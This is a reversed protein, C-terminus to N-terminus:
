KSKWVRDVRILGDAVAVMGNVSPNALAHNDFYTLFLYPLERALLNNIQRYLKLRAAPDTTARAEDLLRDMDANNYNTRNVTGKSHFFQHVNKDPDGGGAWRYLMVQYDKAAAMRIGQVQEVQDIETEIGVKKWMQQLAQAALTAVPTAGVTMKLKVPKGYDALLKKAKDPNYDPYGDVAEHPALGSGFPTSAIKYLGRNVAKNYAVRDLSHAMAQRVRIDSVDARATNIMVFSTALSGANVVKFTKGERADIVDRAAANMVIDLSGSKLSAYRTQQDPLPRLVIEDLYPKDKQWYNPNRVFVIRAGRQWEKFMFPGSGVPNTGFDAKHKDVAAPSTVMGAFDALAGPFHASPTKMRFTVELAGNAEITDLTALDSLCRCRMKPDMMRKFHAIVAAADLPTGDHFKVDRHLTIRFWTADPAADIKEALHPVIQGKSDLDLLTDYLIVGAQRDNFSAFGAPDLTPLDSEISISLSGGRKIDAAGAPSVAILLPLSLALVIRRAATSRQVIM